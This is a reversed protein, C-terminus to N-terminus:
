PACPGGTAVMPVPSTLAPRLRGSDAPPLAPTAPCDIRVGGFHRDGLEIGGVDREQHLVVAAGGLRRPQAGLLREVFAGLDDKPRQKRLRDVDDPLHRPRAINRDGRKRGIGIDRGGAHIEQTEQRLEIDLADHM